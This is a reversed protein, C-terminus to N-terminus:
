SGHRVSVVFDTGLFVMIQDVDVVEQDDVYRAPKLVVFMTDDFHELKPRQHPHVADEVALPHLAFADAVRSFEAMDPEHLGIWVFGRHARAAELSGEFDLDDPLRSGDVYVACDVIVRDTHDVRCRGDSRESSRRSGSASTLPPHYLHLTVYSPHNVPVIPLVSASDVGANSVRGCGGSPVGLTTM